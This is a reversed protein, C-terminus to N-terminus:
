RVNTLTATITREMVERVEMPKFKTAFTPKVIYTPKEIEGLDAM